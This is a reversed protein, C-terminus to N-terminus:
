IFSIPITSSQSPHSSTTVLVYREVTPKDGETILPGSYVFFGDKAMLAQHEWALETDDIFEDNRDYDEARKKRRRKEGPASATSGADGADRMEVDSEPEAADLSEDDAM